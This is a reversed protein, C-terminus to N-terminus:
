PTWELMQLRSRLVRQKLAVQRGELARQGLGPERALL